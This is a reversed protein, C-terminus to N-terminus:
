FLAFNPEGLFTFNQRQVEQSSREAQQGISTPSPVEQLKKLQHRIAFLILCIYFVCVQLVGTYINGILQIRQSVWDTSSATADHCQYEGLPYHVRRSCIGLGNFCLSWTTCFCPTIFIVQSGKALPVYIQLDSFAEEFCQYECLFLLPM